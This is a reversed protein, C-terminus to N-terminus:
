SNRLFLLLPCCCCCPLDVSCRKLLFGEYFSIIKQRWCVTGWLEGHEDRHVKVQSCLIHHKERVGETSKFEWVLFLKGGAGALTASTGWYRPLDQDLGKVEKWKWIGGEIVDRVELGEIKDLSNCYLVGGVLCVSWQWMFRVERELREWVRNRPDYALRGMYLKGGVAGCSPVWTRDYTRDNFPSVVEEWSGVAPDLVEVWIHSTSSCGGMVYIKGDLVATAFHRRPVLM